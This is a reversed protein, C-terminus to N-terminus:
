EQLLNKEQKEGGKDVKLAAEATEYFRYALSRSRAAEVVREVYTLKAAVSMPLAPLKKSGSQAFKLDGGVQMSIEIRSSQHNDPRALEYTESAGHLDAVSSLLVCSPWIFACISLLSRM